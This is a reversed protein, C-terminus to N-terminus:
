EAMWWGGLSVGWITVAFTAGLLLLVIKHLGTFDTAAAKFAAGLHAENEAKRDFVLSRSPDAKVRAAYRMVYAVMVAFTVAFIGLRLMLGDTFPVGAADAAIVTSFANVTYGLLGIGAGLVIVATLADYGAAIMVPTPLIYFALTEEAMGETTGGLAFLWMLIPMM